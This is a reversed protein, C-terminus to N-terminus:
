FDCKQRIKVKFVLGKVFKSSLFYFTSSNQRSLHLINVKVFGFQELQLQPRNKSRSLHQNPKQIAWRARLKQRQHMSLISYNCHNGIPESMRNGVSKSSLPKEQIWNTMLPSRNASNSELEPIKKQISRKQNIPAKLTLTARM